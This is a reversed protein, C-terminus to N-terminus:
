LPTAALELKKSNILNTCHCSTFNFIPWRASCWRTSFLILHLKCLYWFHCMITILFRYYESHNSRYQSYLLVEGLYRGYFKYSPKVVGECPPPRKGVNNWIVYILCSAVLSYEILFPFLFTEATSAAVCFDTTCECVNTELYFIM